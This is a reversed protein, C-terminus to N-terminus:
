ADRVDRGHRPAFREGGGWGPERTVIDDGTYWIVAKYHSLVGLADPAKRGNADVDYVDATQRERGPREPLLEPLEPGDDTGAIRGHLGRRRRRARQELEEECGHLHLLREQRGEQKRPPRCQTWWKQPRELQQQGGRVVGAGLRGAQRGERHRSPHPLLRRDAAGYKEGGNWESTKETKVSGGNIRYKLEVKGLERKALSGCRSRTATPSRRLTFNALPLGAKYTDDSTLYFPKTELGLHSVPDSPDKASKAVDYAFPLNRERVRGAVLAEDDPFM